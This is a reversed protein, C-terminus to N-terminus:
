SLLSYKYYYKALGVWILLCQKKTNVDVKKDFLVKSINDRVFNEYLCVNKCFDGKYVRKLILTCIKVVNAISADGVLNKYSNYRRLALIYGLELDSINKRRTISSDRRIYYYLPESIYVVTKLKPAVSTLLDYDEMYKLSEDFVIGNYCERKIVKTWLHSPTFLGVLLESLFEEKVLVGEKLSTASRYKIKSNDKEYYDFLLMDPFKYKALSEVITNIYNESLYDDPDAWIIYEGSANKLGLNRASSVGGNIKHFVKVNDHQAAYEDILKGSSDTSGDDVLIIEMDLNLNCDLSRLFKVIYREVNYCPVILSYKVNM